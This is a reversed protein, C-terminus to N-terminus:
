VTEGEKVPITYIVILLGWGQKELGFTVSVINYDPNVALWDRLGVNVSYSDGTFTKARQM